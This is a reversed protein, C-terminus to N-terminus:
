RVDSKEERHIRHAPCVRLCEEAVNLHRKQAGWDVDCVAEAVAQATRSEPVPVDVDLGMYAPGERGSLCYRKAWDCAFGDVAGLDFDVGELTVTRGHGNLACTPCASVCPHECRACAPQTRLLPDGPLPCDTVIAVFRQRVGHQPTIPHGHVGVYALGALLAADANARMDPLLGRSSRVKSARGTLDNAITARWGSRELRRVVHFAVDGLLNLTEFQAFAFPGITEAPTVKATDLAADPFRMGLVIVSRAGPLWDEPGLLRGGETVVEPFFPGPGPNADRVAQRPAPDGVARRFESFREASFFGVLDAGRELCFARLDDASPPEQPGAHVQAAPLQASTLVTMYRYGPKPVGLARASQVDNMRTHCIASHGNVDLYHAVEWATYDMRRPLNADNRTAGAGPSRWGLVVVSAADPLHLAPRQGTAAEVTGATGVALADVGGAEAIARIGEVLEAGSLASPEKKRRPARCYDADYVRRAPTMCFKLCSGEEGGATGYKELYTLLVEENVVEPIEHALDLGFNEAWACRWKNTDPFRFTRGGIEIENIGRVEKRFADTPCNRVCEMCKDCLPPGDYMPTPALEADTIVSVVRQRPGYDATMFLGNWGIEGLGAAVAAYRHALDPAFDLKFDKYGTYRWINSSVIPLARVGQAELFRALRFSLDDLKPNMVRWQVLYAGEPQPRPEAGLEVSADTHHLGMVVVSRAGPMLGQPSMRLPAGAFREVPAIGVQDAGLRRAEEVIRETLTV